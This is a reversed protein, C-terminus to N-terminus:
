HIKLYHSHEENGVPYFYLTFVLIFLFLTLGIVRGVLPNVDMYGFGLSGIGLVVIEFYKLQIYSVLFLYRSLLGDFSNMLVGLFGFLMTSEVVPLILTNALVSWISFTQFTIISVPLTSITCSLTTLLYEKIFVNVGGFVEKLYSEIAPLLYILGLTATISLQFGVDYIITPKFFVFVASALPLSLHISNGKGMFIATLAISAMISSRIISPSLGSIICFGWIVIFSIVIKARKNLFFLMKSVVILLITVNYGSAAVIHSVGTIRTYRNFDESFARKQGFIIGALLSAQPEHLNEDIIKVLSDKWDILNNMVKSGERIEGIPLCEMKSNELISYVGQNYLYKKYDFENFSEPEVLTGSFKCVQGIRYKPFKATKVLTKGFDGMKIDVDQLHNVELITNSLRIDPESTIAGWFVVNEDTFCSVEEIKRQEPIVFVATRIFVLTTVLLLLIRWREEILSKSCANKVVKCTNSRKSINRLYRKLLLIIILVAYGCTICGIIWGASNNRLLKLFIVDFLIYTLSIFVIPFDLVYRMLGIIRHKIKKLSEKLDHFM